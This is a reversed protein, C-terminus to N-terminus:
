KREWYAMLIGSEVGDAPLSSSPESITLKSLAMKLSNGVTVKLDVFPEDDSPRAMPVPPKPKPINVEIV